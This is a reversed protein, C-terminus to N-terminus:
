HKKPPAPAKAQKFYYAAGAKFGKAFTLVNQRFKVPLDKMADEFTKALM